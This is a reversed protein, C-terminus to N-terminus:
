KAKDKSKGTKSGEPWCMCRNPFWGIMNPCWYAWVDYNEKPEKLSGRCSLVKCRHHTKHNSHWGM